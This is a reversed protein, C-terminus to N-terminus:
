AEGDTRLPAAMMTPLMTAVLREPGGQEPEAVADGVCVTITRGPKMVRGRAIVRRGRAPAVFNVKYEITLV